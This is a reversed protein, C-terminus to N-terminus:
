VTFSCVNQPQQWAEICQMEMAPVRIWREWSACQSPMANSSDVDHILKNLPHAVINITAKQRVKEQNHRKITDLKSPFYHFLLKM